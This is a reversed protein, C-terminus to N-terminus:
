VRKPTSQEKSYNIISTLYGVLVLPYLLHFYNSTYMLVSTILVISIISFITKSQLKNVEKQPIWSARTNLGYTLITVVIGMFIYLGTTIWYLIPVVDIFSYYLMVCLLTFSILNKTM